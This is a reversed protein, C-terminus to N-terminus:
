LYVMNWTHDMEDSTVTINPIGLENLVARYALMYAQCVGKRTDLCDDAKYVTGSTDYAINGCIWKYIKELQERQDGAGQTIEDALPKWDYQTTFAKHQGAAELCFLAAIVLISLLKTKM